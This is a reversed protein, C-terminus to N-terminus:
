QKHFKVVMVRNADETTGAPIDFTADTAPVIDWDDTKYSQMAMTTLDAASLKISHDKLKASLVSFTSKGNADAIPKGDLTIDKVRKRMIGSEGPAASNVHSKRGNKTIAKVFHERVIDLDAESTESMMGLITLAGFGETWKKRLNAIVAQKEAVKEDTLPEPLEKKALANIEEHLKAIMEEARTIKDRKNKIEPNDSTEAIAKIKEAEDGTRSRLSNVEADHQEGISNLTSVAGQIMPNFETLPKVTEAVADNNKVTATTADSM